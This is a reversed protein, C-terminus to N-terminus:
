ALKGEAWSRLAPRGIKANHRIDVPFSDHFLVHEIRATHPRTKALALLEDRLADGQRARHEEELEVCLVPVTRGGRSVGVLASRFVSAHTNFVAECPVTFLTEDDLTVRQSKRGCFWLRGDADMRALDGMRHWIADGERIKALETSADRNYYRETVVPGKVCVEGTEGPAVETADEWRAIADDSVAILRVDMADIPRGVCVGEGADTAARTEGLVEDSSITAVPLSETAGYPTHIRAGPGLLSLMREMTTAPVPAGASIVRRLTPLSVNAAAGARSVTNLLAPSGFMNTVGFNEVAEFIENPDVSAPKTFDMEPIVSTMGLAPDFLAFLPFTPLDIEGPRIDYMARILEVQALFTGHSYVVGKPIGTSGSTFLIAAMDSLSTERTWQRVEGLDSARGRRQVDALTVGGWPGKRGVTVWQKLSRKAWGLVVRAMHAKPIGIFAEPEAEGLCTKLAPLGIGPDIMVPAAGAKFIGFTLAFFELSPTVMLAARTGKGIGYARLGAAIVDSAEDLQRFTYHVYRRRGTRDRGDPYYIAPAFPQTDAVESLTAAINTVAFEM